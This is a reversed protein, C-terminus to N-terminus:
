QKNNKDIYIFGIKKSIYENFSCPRYSEAHCEEDMKGINPIKLKAVKGNIGVLRGNVRVLLYRNEECAQILEGVTM